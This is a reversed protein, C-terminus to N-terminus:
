GYPKERSHYTNLSDTLQIKKTFLDSQGFSFYFPFVLFCFLFLKNM